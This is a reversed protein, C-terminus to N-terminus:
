TQLASDRKPDIVSRKERERIRMKRMAASEEDTM